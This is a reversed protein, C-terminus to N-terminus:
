LRHSHARHRAQRFRVLGDGVTRDIDVTVTRSEESFIVQREGSPTRLNGLTQYHEGLFARWDETIDLRGHSADCTFDIEITARTENTGAGGIRVRGARCRGGDLDVTVSRRAAEAVAEAAGRDANAAATLIAASAAPLEPLALSLAYLMGGGTFEIRLLGTTTVHALADGCGILALWLLAWRMLRMTVANRRDAGMGRGRLGAVTRDGPSGDLRAYHSLGMPNTVGFSIAFVSADAGSVIVRLRPPALGFQAVGVRAVEAETLVRDPGSNRLLKLAGDLRAEFGAAVTGQTARWGDQTRVFHWHGRPAVVDVERVDELPIMMLGKPVFPELGPGGRGGTFALAALFVTAGLAAAAWALRNM